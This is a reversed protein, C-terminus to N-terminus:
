GYSSCDSVGSRKLYEVAANSRPISPPWLGAAVWVQDRDLGLAASLNDLVIEAVRTRGQEIEYIYSYNVGSMRDLARLTLGRKDREGRIMNGLELFPQCEINGSGMGRVHEQQTDDSARETASRTRRVM